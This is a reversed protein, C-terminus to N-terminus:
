TKALRAKLGSYRESVFDWNVVNWFAKVYEPRRNQYKLYYAHEWVDIGFVPYKGTMLPSDQNPTTAIEIAGNKDLLLWAWGSGFIGLAAKTLRDQFADFSTFKEDLAKVLDGTPGSGGNKKLSPWWLSHNAHGGGQNRVAPRLEMPITDIDSVLQEVSLDTLKPTKALAKNLNDVYAQHHKDHHLTMTQADIFPELADPAYPLPPLTKVPHTDTPANQAEVATAVSGM